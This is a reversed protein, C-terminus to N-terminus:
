NTRRFRDEPDVAKRHYIWESKGFGYYRSLYDEKINEEEIVRPEHEIIMDSLVYEENTYKKEKVGIGIILAIITLGAAVIAIIVSSIKFIKIGLSNDKLSNITYLIISIALILFAILMTHVINIGVVFKLDYISSM